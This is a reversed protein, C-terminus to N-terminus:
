KSKEAMFLVWLKGLEYVIELRGAIQQYVTESKLDISEFDSDLMEIRQAFTPYEAKFSDMKKEWETVAQWAAVQEKRLEEQKALFEDKMKDNLTKVKEVMQTKGDISYLHALYSLEDASSGFSGSELVKEIYEKAGDTILRRGDKDNGNKFKIIGLLSKPSIYHYKLDSPIFLDAPIKFKETVEWKVLKEAWGELKSVDPSIESYFEIGIRYYEKLVMQKWDDKTEFRFDKFLGDLKNYQHNAKYLVGLLLHFSVEQLSSHSNSAYAFGALHRDDSNKMDALTAKWIDEDLKLRMDNRIQKREMIAIVREIPPLDTLGVAFNVQDDINEKEAFATQSSSPICVLAILLIMLYRM